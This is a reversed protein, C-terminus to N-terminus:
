SVNTLIVYKKLNTKVENLSLIYHCCSILQKLFHYKCCLNRQKRRLKSSKLIKRNCRLFRTAKECYRKLISYITLYRKIIAHYIKDLLLNINTQLTTRIKKESQWDYFEIIEYEDIDYEDATDFKLEDTEQIVNDIAFIIDERIGNEIIGDLLQNRVRLM